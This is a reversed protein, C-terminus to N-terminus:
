FLAAAGSQGGAQRAATGQAERAITARLRARHGAMLEPNWAPRAASAARPAAARTERALGQAAHGVRQMLVAMSPSGGPILPTLASARKIKMRKPIKVPKAKLRSRVDEAKAPKHLKSHSYRLGQEAMEQVLHAKSAIKLFEDTFATLTTSNM